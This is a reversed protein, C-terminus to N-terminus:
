SKRAKRRSVWAYLGSVLGVAIMAFSGPEPAPALAGFLGHDEVQDPGAIGANFYLTDLNGGAAGNGFILGWLGPIVLPNGSIGDLTGRFAGSSPDYATIEGSGFNGVLLDNSFAGFNSSAIAVGWPANLAGQSAVRRVFNGSTDFVNVFGLGAGDVEDKGGGSKAYTVYLEGGLNQVNFPAYGSPLNPDHFAGPTQVAHFNSDFVDIRGLGFNAAYIQNGAIGLGKYVSGAQGQGVITSSTGGTWSVITGSETDFLFPAGGFSTSSSNFVIGTPDPSAAPIGVVLGLKTGATNYLTSKGTGNDATWFPSSPSAAIGWPNVLDPDQNAAVGPLDSSLNTQSYDNVNAATVASAASIFLIGAAIQFRYM